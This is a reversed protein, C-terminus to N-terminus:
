GAGTTAAADESVAGARLSHARSGRALWRALRCLAARGTTHRLSATRVGRGNARLGARQHARGPGSVEDGDAGCDPGRAGRASHSRAFAGGAGAPRSVWSPSRDFRRALEDLSYGFCREMESLLWGQELACERRSFRLSRELLLAEAESMTWVTAEVTDRRLQELAAIRQYGDLVIYRDDQEAPVVVIPTQQGGEALSAMLQRQRHPERVRLHEWRRELQHFELQM